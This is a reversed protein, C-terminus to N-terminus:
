EIDLPLKGLVGPLKDPTCEGNICYEGDPCDQDSNCVIVTVLPPTCEGNVCYEGDPCDQDSNCVIV